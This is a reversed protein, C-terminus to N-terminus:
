SRRERSSQVDDITIPSAALHDRLSRRGRHIRSRVTGLPWGTVGAIEDYSLGEVDCLVVALRFDDPLGALGRELRAELTRREVVDAPGPEASVPTRWDEEPLQEMRVRNRRRARDLFLNKTIRYLWGEFTGPEYRHLNVYVREFVDQALDAADEVNGTLRMSIAYIRGGYREVVEDFTPRPDPGQMPQAEHHDLSLGEEVTERVPSRGAITTRV